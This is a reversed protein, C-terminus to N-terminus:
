KSGKIHKDWGKPSIGSILFERDDVSSSVLADQIREGNYWKQLEATNVVVTHLEKTFVCPGFIKTTGDSRDRATLGKIKYTM